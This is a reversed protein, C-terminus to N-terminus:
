NLLAQILAGKFSDRHRKLIKHAETELLYGKGQTNRERLRRLITDYFAGQEDNSITVLDNAVREEFNLSKIRGTLVVLIRALSSKRSYNLVEVANSKVAKMHKWVEVAVIKGILTSIKKYVKHSIYYKGEHLIYVEQKDEEREKERFVLFDKGLDLIRHKKAKGTRTFESIDVVDDNDTFREGEILGVIAKVDEPYDNALAELHREFEHRPTHDGTDAKNYSLLRRYLMGRQNRVFTEREKQLIGKVSDRAVDTVISTVTDPSLTQIAM